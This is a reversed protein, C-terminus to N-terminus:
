TLNAVTSYLNPNILTIQSIRHSKVGVVTPAFQMLKQSCSSILLLLGLHQVVRVPQLAANSHVMSRAFIM